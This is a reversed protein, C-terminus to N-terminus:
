IQQPDSSKKDETGRLLTPRYSMIYTFFIRFTSLEGSHAQLWLPELDPHRDEISQPFPQQLFEADFIDMRSVNKDL